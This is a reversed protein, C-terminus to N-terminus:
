IEIEKEIGCLRLAHQLQHVSINGKFTMSTGYEVETVDEPNYILKQYEISSYPYIVDGKPLQVAIEDDGSLLRYWSDQLTFGNNQLIEITLPIPHLINVSFLEYFKKNQESLFDKEDRKAMIAYNDEDGDSSPRIGLVKCYYGNPKCYCVWDGTMLDKANM